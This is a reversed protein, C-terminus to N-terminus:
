FPPEDVPAPQCHPCDQWDHGTDRDPVPRGGEGHCVPCDDYPGDHVGQKNRPDEHYRKVEGTREDNVTVDIPTHLLWSTAFGAKKLASYLAEDTGGWFGLGEGNHHESAVACKCGGSRFFTYTVHIPDM